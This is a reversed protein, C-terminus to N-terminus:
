EKGEREDVIEQAAHVTNNDLTVAGARKGIRIGVGEPGATRITNGRIVTGEAEGDIRLGARGNGEVTNKMSAIRHAAMPRSENRWEVGSGANDAIGNRRLLNDRGVIHAGSLGITIRIGPRALLEKEPHNRRAAEGQSVTALLLLATLLLPITKM